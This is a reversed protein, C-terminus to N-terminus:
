SPRFRRWLWGGVPLLGWFLIPGLFMVLFGVMAVAVLLEDRRWAEEGMLMQGVDRILITQIWLIAGLLGVVLGMFFNRM